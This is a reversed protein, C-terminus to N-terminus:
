AYRVLYGRSDIIVPDRRMMDALAPRGWGAAVSAITGPPNFTMRRGRRRMAIRTGVSRVFMRRRRNQFNVYRRRARSPLTRLRRRIFNRLRNNLVYRRLYRRIAALRRQRSRYRLYSSGIRNAANIRDANLLRYRGVFPLNSGVLQSSLYDSAFSM